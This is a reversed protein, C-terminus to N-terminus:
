PDVGEGRRTRMAKVVQVCGSTLLTRYVESEMACLAVRGQADFVLGWGYKKPLPSARLCAQPKAFFATRLRAQEASSTDPLVQRQLWSTFLVDAQTFVYPHTALLEYQLVAVTKKQNANTPVVACAVPCDDAVAILTNYYTDNM